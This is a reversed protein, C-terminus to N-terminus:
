EINQKIHINQLGNNIRIINKKQTNRQSGKKSETLEQNKKISQKHKKHFSLALLSPLFFLKFIGFPFDSDTFRLLAALAIGL